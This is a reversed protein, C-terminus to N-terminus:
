VGFAREWLAVNLRRVRATIGNRGVNRGSSALRELLRSGGVVSLEWARLPGNLWEEAPAPWGMKDRRWTIADPLKGEFALRAFYKTYGNRIKYCAPVSLSFEVLRHDMFPMRSEISYHMSRADSYHILNVLGHNVSHLLEDNLARSRFEFNRGFGRMLCNALRDGLIRRGISLLIMMTVARSREGTDWLAYGQAILDRWCVGALYTPIYHLYGAQVEDAGQGDLTVKLKLRQALGITHIGSIGLGDPPAEQQRAVIATLEPVNLDSPEARCSLFNLDEQLLDIFRSEDYHKLSESVYVSSFTQLESKANQSEFIRSAIYVISSSDLGGSLACGLPVDSRLRLRVADFLLAYYAGAIAKAKSPDYREVSRNAEMTWYREPIWADGRTLEIHASHGFPFRYIGKFPTEAEWESSGSILFKELVDINPSATVRPNALLAKIESGFIIGTSDQFYYLPKIGFRDRSVFLEFREQDFIVFAWDGNFRHVCSRGWEVYAHIIVETDSQTAFSHGLSILEERIEIYNYIEGNFTIWYRGDPSSM